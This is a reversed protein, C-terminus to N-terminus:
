IGITVQAVTQDWHRIDGPLLTEPQQELGVEWRDLRLEPGVTEKLQGAPEWM